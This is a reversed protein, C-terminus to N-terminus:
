SLSLKRSWADMFALRGGVTWLRGAQSVARVAFGDREWCLYLWFASCGRWPNWQKPWSHCVHGQARWTPGTNWFENSKTWMCRFYAVDFLIWYQEMSIIKRVRWLLRLWLSLSHLTILNNPWLVQCAMTIDQGFIIANCWQLQFTSPTLSLHYM